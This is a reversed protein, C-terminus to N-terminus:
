CAFAFGVLSGRFQSAQHKVAYRKSFCDQLFELMLYSHGIGLERCRDNLRKLQISFAQCPIETQSITNMGQIGYSREELEFIQPSCSLLDLYLESFIKPDFDQNEVQLILDNLLMMFRQSASRGEDALIRIAKGKTDM